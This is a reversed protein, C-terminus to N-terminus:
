SQKLIEAKSTQGSKNAANIDAGKDLLAELLEQKGLLAALDLANHNQANRECLEKSASSQVKQLLEENDGGSEVMALLSMDAACTTTM